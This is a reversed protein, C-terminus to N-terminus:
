FASAAAAEIKAKLAKVAKAEEVAAAAAAVAAELRETAEAKTKAISLSLENDVNAGTEERKVEAM